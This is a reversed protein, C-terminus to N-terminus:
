LRAPMASRENQWIEMQGQGPSGAWLRQQLEAGGGWPWGWTVPGKSVALQRGAGRAGGTHEYYHGAEM